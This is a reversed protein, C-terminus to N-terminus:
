REKVSDTHGNCEPGWLGAREAKPKADAANIDLSLSVPKRGYVYPHAMGARVAEVSYNWGDDRIIYALTRGYKDHMDQGPDPAVAVRRGTLSRSAFDAAEAAYCGVSWGPKHMEYPDTPRATM